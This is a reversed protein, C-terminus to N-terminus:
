PRLETFGAAAFDGDFALVEEIGKARMFAFSAADVFSYEREDHRRLWALAEDELEEAVRAVEIVSGPQGVSDLFRVAIEHRARSRLWTWTEGRVHNTTVLRRGAVSEALRVADDHHADREILYAILFSSDAFTV